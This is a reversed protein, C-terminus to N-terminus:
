LSMFTGLSFFIAIKEFGPKIHLADSILVLAIGLDM